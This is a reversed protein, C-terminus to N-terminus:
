TKHKMALNQKIASQKQINTVKYQNQRVIM